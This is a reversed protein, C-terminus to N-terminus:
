PGAPVRELLRIVTAAPVGLISQGDGERRGGFVVALLDGNADVIPSGSAGVAGYGRVELRDFENLQLVGASLLPRAITRRGELAAAEGGLPFGIMAVPTGLPLTDARLNFSGLFPVDGLINDVKVLALDADTAVLLIRAPWVQESDAFQVAVRTPRETGELGAVVHRSTLITADPRIAFASGTVVLGDPMEAFVRAVAPRTRAQLRPFDLSAVLLQERLTSNASDLQLRLDGAEALEGRTEADRLAGELAGVREQSTGLAATLGALQLQLDNQAQAGAWELSDIQLRMADRERAFRARQTESLFLIVFIFLLLVAILAGITGSVKRKSRAAPRAARQREPSTAEPAAILSSRFEATPGGSGFVINDGNHLPTDRTVRTGNIWTGNRSDLDRL